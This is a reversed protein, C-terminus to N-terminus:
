LIRPRGLRRRYRTLILDVLTQPCTGSYSGKAPCSKDKYAQDTCGSLYTVGYQGNYCAGSSLCMDGSECCSIHGFNSNGCPIYRSPSEDGSNDFFCRGWSIWPNNDDDDAMALEPPIHPLEYATAIDGNLFTTIVTPFVSTPRTAMSHFRRKEVQSRRPLRLRTTAALSFLQSNPNSLKPPFECVFHQRIASNDSANLDTM